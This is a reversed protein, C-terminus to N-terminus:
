SCSFMIYYLMMNLSWLSVNNRPMSKNVLAEETRFVSIVAYIVYL